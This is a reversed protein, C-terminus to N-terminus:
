PGVRALGAREDGLRQRLAPLFAVRALLLARMPLSRPWARSRAVSRMRSCLTSREALGSWLLEVAERVDETMSLGRARARDRLAWVQRLGALFRGASDLWWARPTRLVTTARAALGRAGVVNRGHQRYLVAPADLFEVRGFAGACLGLWWDHMAVQPMPLACRLLAANVLTACGTVSNGFLLRRARQEEAADIRLYRTFSEQLTQLSDDVVRLDTHVLLPMDAGTEEEHARMAAMMRECKDPLWVDDQDSLFVYREGRDLAHQLLLGFSAAPGLNLGDPPLLEMRPERAALGELRHYTDDRSSDDRVYLRWGRATQEVISQVQAEVHAAGDYASLVVAFAHPALGPSDSM